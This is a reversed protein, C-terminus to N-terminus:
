QPYQPIGGTLKSWDRKSLTPPLPGNSSNEIVVADPYFTAGEFKPCFPGSCSKIPPPTPPGCTIDECHPKPRTPPFPDSVPKVEDISGVKPPKMPAYPAEKSFPGFFPPGYPSPPIRLAPLPRKGTSFDALAQELKGDKYTGITGDSNKIIILTKKPDLNKIQTNDWMQALSATALTQSIIAVAIILKM